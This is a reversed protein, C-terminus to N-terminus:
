QMENCQIASYQVQQVLLCQVAKSTTFRNCFKNFSARYPLNTLTITKQSCSTPAQCRFLLWMTLLLIAHGNVCSLPSKPPTLLPVPTSKCDQFCNLDNVEKSLQRDQEDDTSVAGESLRTLAPPGGDVRITKGKTKNTTVLIFHPSQAFQIAGNHQHLRTSWEFFSRL